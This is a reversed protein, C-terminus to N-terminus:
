HYPSRFLSDKFWVTMEGPDRNAWAYYPIARFEVPLLSINGSGSEESGSKIKGTVTGVGNLLGSQYEYNIEADNEVVLDMVGHAQQDIAEACYIIPGRQLAVSGEDAKLLISSKVRRPTMPFEVRIEDDNEWIRNISAYGDKEIIKIVKENVFFKPLENFEDDFYYLDSPFAENRAWGPIRVMMNFAFSKSTNLKIRIQGEWPYNTSQKLSIEHGKINIEAENGIFLNIFLEDGKIAYIYGPVSPLFRTINVPCCACGFWAKRAYQGKSALPNPYFFRDGSLSVGSLLGNYLVKEFVDFYKSEGHLLFMRYNWLANAIAACTECYAEMNPLNYAEGFGENNGVSGIGGTLYTKGNVVDTWLTDIANLYEKEGTLAAIDAMAAYMYQARVAHGVAVKQKIVKEHMQNYEDGGPGREDLFFKALNLYKRDGTVRFLKILGIEIEQHGPAKEIKGWGFLSDILNANKIAVSLLTKKGTAQYHAVAAEYLHGANYLEHSSEEENVWRQKGAMEHTNQPDITRNTYLYGDNEQASAIYGILSDLFANLKPDPYLQMSYCAAEINKYVDSDDFPYLSCFTGEKLKGAILFNDIRGTEAAKRFAIPITVRHNTLMRPAWFRDNVKVRTFPVPKIPYDLSSSSQEQCRCLLLLSLGAILAIYISSKVSAIKKEKM